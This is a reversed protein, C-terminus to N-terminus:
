DIPLACNCGGIDWKDEEAKGTELFQERYEKLTLYFTQLDSGSGYRKKLFPKANFHEKIAEQQEEHYKYLEPLKEYLIKFHGLGAKVCFGACNNHSFGLKYLRPREIGFQESFDKNVIRGEEVLTSRYIWPKMREQVGTLRHSESYDIGLHHEVDEPKFNDRMYKNLLERKLMRSCIDVRSNGVFRQEKFLEWLNKGYCLRVFNCGLFKKTDELFRYLDEDEQLTDAFLLTVNEKGYKDVCSKAEAFSGMGGSFSVLHTVM